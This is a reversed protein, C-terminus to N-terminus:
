PRYTVENSCLSSLGNSSIASVCFFYTVGSVLNSVYGTLNNGVHVANTYNGSAVGQKIAYDVIGTGTSANWGLQVWKNTPQTIPDFFATLITTGKPVSLVRPNMSNSDSWRGFMYNITPVAHITITSKFPYTGGGTTTGADSPSTPLIIIGQPKAQALQAMYAAEGPPMTPTPPTLAQKRPVPVPPLPPLPKEPTKCGVLAILSYILGMKWAYNILEYRSHISLSHMIHNLHYEITKHSIKLWDAMKYINGDTKAFLSVIMDRHDEGKKLRCRTCIPPRNTLLKYHRNEIDRGCVHCLRM